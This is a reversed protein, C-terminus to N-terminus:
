KCTVGVDDAYKLAMQEIVVASYDLNVINQHYSFRILMRLLLLFRRSLISSVHFGDEYMDHSLTSNGCGLMLIRSKKDPILRNMHNAVDKYQKFWDFSGDIGETAYRSDRYNLLFNTGITLSYCLYMGTHSM